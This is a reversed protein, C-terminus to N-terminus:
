ITKCHKPCTRIIHYYILWLYLNFQITITQTFPRKPKWNRNKPTKQAQTEKKKPPTRPVPHIQSCKHVLLTDSLYRKPYRKPVPSFTSCFLVLKARLCWHVLNWSIALYRKQYNVMDSEMTQLGKWSFSRRVLLSRCLSNLRNRM